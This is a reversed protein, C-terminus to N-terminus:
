AENDPVATPSPVPTSTILNSTPAAISSTPMVFHFEEEPILYSKKLYGVMGGVTKVKVWTDDTNELITLQTGHSLSGLVNTGNTSPGSRLRVTSVADNCQLRYERGIAYPEATPTVEPSLAPTIGPVNTVAATPTPTTGKPIPTAYQSDVDDTSEPYVMKAHVIYRYQNTDDCTSLTLVRDTAKFTNSNHSFNSRSNTENCWNLFSINSGFTTYLYVDNPDCRYISYVEYRYTGYLTDLFIYRHNNLYKDNANSKFFYRISAFMSGDKMNHGHVLLNRSMPLIDCSAPMFLTGSTSTAKDYSHSLYFSKENDKYQRTDRAIPYEIGMGPWYIYAVIDPNISNHVTWIEKQRNIYGLQQEFSTESPTAEPRVVIEPAEFNIPDFGNPDQTDYDAKWLIEPPDLQNDPPIVIHNEENEGPIDVQGIHSNEFLDRYKQDAVIEGIRKNFIRFACFCIVVVLAIPILRFVILRAIDQVMTKKKKIRVPKYDSM